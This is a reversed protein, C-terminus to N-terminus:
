YNIQVYKLDHKIQEYFSPTTSERTVLEVNKGFENELTDILASFEDFSKKGPLYEVLLDIDSQATQLGKSYSGFLGIRNVHYSKLVDKNASLYNIIEESTM